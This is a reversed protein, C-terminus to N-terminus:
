RAEITPCGLIIRVDIVDGRMVRACTEGLLTVTTGDLSWGSKPVAIEDLYVNVRNADPPSEKLEYTCTAVIRAAVQRLAAILDAKDTKDVRYYATSGTTQQTGGAVALRDLLPGYAQSGPVGIVFTPVGGAKLKAVADVSAASDLCLSPSDACCSAGAPACGNQREINLICTDAGCGGQGCNPGGDTALIVYTKGAVKPLRDALAALTAATPTGGGPQRWLADALTKTTPGITGSPSDGRRLSMLESGASCGGTDGPFATAGFSARPGIAKMLEIVATRVTMWKDADAMSGSRDLVFYFNPPDVLLPSDICDCVGGDPGVGCGPPALSSADFGFTGAADETAAVGGGGSIGGRGFPLPESGCGGLAVLGAVAVAAGV